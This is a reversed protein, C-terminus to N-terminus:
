DRPAYGDTLTGLFAKLNRIDADSLAPKAGRQRGFPPEMNVNATFEPPLDDFLRISGDENRSYWKEPHTDRQAYFRLVDELDHFRGNHFFTRRLAVNRLSPTRFMGCYENRTALDTREPGCLGLDHFAASANAAIARNRPVGLAVYGYDTFQPFAGNRISSPHCSACNGRAPDNFVALGRAERVALKVQGRLYADYKSDYPYFDRPSQQFVELALVAADLATRDADLVDEGFAKRMASAYSAARLKSAVDDAGGNAMEAPSLLPLLAQEHASQVRGDWTRGGAPGQDASDDGETEHFHETFAPVSQGYRLSPAARFGSHKLDPGGVQVSAANPPGFAYAPDHCSACAVKGSASLARDFFISRGLATLEPVTPTREFRSTYFADASAPREVSNAPTSAVAPPAPRCGQACAAFVLVLFIRMVELRPFQGANV